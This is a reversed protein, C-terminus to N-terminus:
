EVIRRHHVNLYVKNKSIGIIRALILM